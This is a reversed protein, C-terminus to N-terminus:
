LDFAWGVLVNALLGSYGQQAPPDIFAKGTTDHLTVGKGASSSVNPWYRAVLAVNFGKWVFFRWGLEAGVTVTTYAQHDVATDLEFRHVKFDALLWMEDLLLVGVGGGTTWPVHVAAGASKEASTAFPSYDLGQG